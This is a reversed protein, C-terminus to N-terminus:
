RLTSMVHHLAVLAVDREGKALVVPSGGVCAEYLERWAVARGGTFRIEGDLRSSFYHSGESFAALCASLGASSAVDCIVDIDSQAHRHGGGAFYEWATSGYVGLQLAHGAIATAFRRMAAAQDTPLVEIAEEVTVPNRQRLVASAPATCAIRQAGLAHPLAIGLAVVGEPAHQRAAVLPKGAALWQAIWHRAAEDADAFSPMAGERLYVWDHRRLIM